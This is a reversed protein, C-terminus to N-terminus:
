IQKSTALIENAYKLRNGSVFMEAWQPLHEMPPALSRRCGVLSLLMMEM